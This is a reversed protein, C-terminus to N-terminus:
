SLQRSRWNWLVPELVRNQSRFAGPMCRTCLGAWIQAALCGYGSFLFLHSKFYPPFLTRLPQSGRPFSHATSHLAARRSTTRHPASRLLTTSHSATHHPATRRPANRHPTTRHPPAYCLVLVLSRPCGHAESSQQSVPISISVRCSNGHITFIKILVLM